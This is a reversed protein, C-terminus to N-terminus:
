PECKRWFYNKFPGSQFLGQGLSRPVRPACKGCTMEQWSSIRFHGSVVLFKQFLLQPSNGSPVIIPKISTATNKTTQVAFTQKQGLASM